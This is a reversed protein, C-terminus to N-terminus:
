KFKHSIARKHANKVEEKRDEDISLVEAKEAVESAIRPHIQHLRRLREELVELATNLAKTAWITASEMADHILEPVKRQLDESLTQLQENQQELLKQTNNLNEVDNNLEQVKRNLKNKHKNLWNATNYERDAIRKSTDLKIVQREAEKHEPSEYEKKAFTVKQQRQNIHEYFDNQLEEGVLTLEKPSLQSYLEPLNLGKKQKIYEYQNQVFDYQQTQKNKADITLHVHPVSEDNHIVSLVIEYDPFNEKYYDTILKEQEEGTLLLGNHEPIKLLVSVTCTNLQSTQDINLDKRQNHLEVLKQVARKKDNFRSVKGCKELLQIAGDLKMGTTKKDDTAAVLKAFFAREQENCKDSEAWKKLKHKTKRYATSDFQNNDNEYLSQVYNLADERGTEDTVINGRFRYVNLHSKASIRQQNRKAPNDMLLDHEALAKALNKNFKAVRIQKHLITSRATM